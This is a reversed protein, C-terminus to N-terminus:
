MELREEDLAARQTAIWQEVRERTPFHVLAMFGGFGLGGALAWPAGLM